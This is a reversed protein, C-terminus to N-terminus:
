KKRFITIRDFFIMALTKQESTMEDPLQEDKLHCELGELAMRTDNVNLVTGTEEKLKKRFRVTESMLETITGGADNENELVQMGLSQFLLKLDEDPM